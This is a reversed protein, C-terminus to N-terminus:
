SANVFACQYTNYAISGLLASSEKGSIGAGATGVYDTGLWGFLTSCRCSHSLVAPILTLASTLVRDHSVYSM